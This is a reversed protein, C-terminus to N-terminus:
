GNFRCIWRAAEDERWNSGGAKEGTGVVDQLPLLRRVHGCVKFNRIFSLYIRLEFESSMPFVMTWGLLLVTYLFNFVDHFPWKSICRGQCRRTLKPDDRKINFTKSYMTLRSSIAGGAGGMAGGAGTTDGGPSSYFITPLTQFSKSIM